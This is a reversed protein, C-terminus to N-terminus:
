LTGAWAERSRPGRRFGCRRTNSRRSGIGETLGGEHSVCQDFFIPSYEGAEKGDDRGVGVNAFREGLLEALDKLQSM